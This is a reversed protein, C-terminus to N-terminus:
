RKYRHHAFDILSLTGVGYIKARQRPDELDRRNITVADRKVRLEKGEEPSWLMGGANGEVTTLVPGEYSQVMTIHNATGDAGGDILAVDGLRLLGYDSFGIMHPGDERAMAEIDENDIWLRPADNEEHFQKLDVLEDGSVGVVAWRPVRKGYRYRFYDEVNKVHWFGKRLDKALGASYLWSAVAFGCWMRDARGDDRWDMRKAFGAQHTIRDIEDHHTKERIGQKWDLRAAHVAESVFPFIEERQSM